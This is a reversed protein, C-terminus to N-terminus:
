ELRCFVTVSLKDTGEIITGTTIRSQRERRLEVEQMCDNTSLLVPTVSLWTGNTDPRGNGLILIELIPIPLCWNNGILQDLTSSRNCVEASVSEQSMLSNQVHINKHRSSSHGVLIYPLLAVCSCNGLHELVVIHWVLGPAYYHKVSSM